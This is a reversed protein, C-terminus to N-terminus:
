QGRFLGVFVFGLRTMYFMTRNGNDSSSRKPKLRVKTDWNHHYGFTVWRLKQYFDKETLKNKIRKGEKSELNDINTINPSKPLDLITRRM